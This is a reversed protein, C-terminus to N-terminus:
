PNVLRTRARVTVGPRTSTVEIKEPPVLSDPRGYSVVYQNLLDDAVQKLKDPIGSVALVQDRRGGSRETGDAIVINRNRMEDTMSASPTGVAVINLMAGSKQLEDLVQQYHHNSFDVASEFTIALIAPREADRKALGRSADLIADLLYAGSGPRPFLRKVLGDLEGTDETYLSLATPREGMTILAIRAKGRLRELLAGLGDRLYITADSAAESDDILVALTLPADAPRADLVERAKGDERVSFDAAKLGPVPAGKRDLVSVFVERTGAARGARDQAQLMVGLTCLVFLAALRRATTTM